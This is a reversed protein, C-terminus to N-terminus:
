GNTMLPSVLVVAASNQQGGLFTWFLLQNFKWNSSSRLMVLDLLYGRECFWLDTSISTLLNQTSGPVGPPPLERTRMARLHVGPRLNPLPAKAVTQPPVQGQRVEAAVPNPLLLRTTQTQRHDARQDVARVAEQAAAQGLLPSCRTLHLSFLDQSDELAVLLSQLGGKRTMELEKLMLQLLHLLLVEQHKMLLPPLTQPQLEKLDQLLLVVSNKEASLAPAM